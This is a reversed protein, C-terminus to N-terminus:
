ERLGIYDFVFANSLFGGAGSGSLNDISLTNAGAKFATKPIHITFVHDFGRYIGFTISRSQYSEPAGPDRSTWTDNLHVIPRSGYQSDTIGIELDHDKIEPTDIKFVIKNGNNVDAWQAAPFDNLNAPVKERVTFTVPGWPELRKDSPHMDGMKAANRLGHPTGDPLGIRWLYPPLGPDTLNATVTGTSVAVTSKAVSLENRMLRLTYSGPKMSSTTFKGNAPVRTWYQATDNSLYVTYPVGPMLGTATGTVRGRESVWGKLDLDKMWGMAPMNPPPGATFCLAYPGHLQNKRFPETQAHGSYMYFYMEETAGATQSNIDRFFPGGSSSEHSGIAFFAGINSGRSGHIDDDIFKVGSYYKSTTRGDPQIFIDKSEIAKASTDDGPREVNGKNLVKSDLRAIFRMEGPPPCNAAWTAMFVDPEGKKFAYYHLVLPSDVTVLIKDDGLAKASVKSDGGFGSNLHSGRSNTQLQTGNVRISQLNGNAKNVQVVLAPSSDCDITLFKGEDKLSFEAEAMALSALLVLGMWKMQMVWAHERPFHM